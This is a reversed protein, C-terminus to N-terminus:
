FTYTDHHSRACVGRCFSICVLILVFASAGAGISLLVYRVIDWVYRPDKALSECTIRDLMRLLTVTRLPVRGLQTCTNNTNINEDSLLFLTRSGEWRVAEGETYITSDPPFTLILFFLLTLLTISICVIYIVGTIRADEQITLCAHKIRKPVRCRTYYAVSGLTIVVGLAFAFMSISVIHFTDDSLFACNEWDIWREKGDDYTDYTYSSSFSYWTSKHACIGESTNLWLITRICAETPFFEWEKGVVTAQRLQRLPCAYHPSCGQILFIVGLIIPINVCTSMCLLCRITGRDCRPPSPRSYGEIEM